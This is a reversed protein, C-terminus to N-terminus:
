ADVHTDLEREGVLWSAAEFRQECACLAAAVEEDGPKDRLIQQLQSVAADALLAYQALAEPARLRAHAIIEDADQRLFGIRSALALAQGREWPEPLRVKGLAWALINLQDLRWFALACAERDLSGVPAALIASERRELRSTLGNREIWRLILAHMEGARPDDKSSEMTGRCVLAALGLARAAVQGPKVISGFKMTKLM